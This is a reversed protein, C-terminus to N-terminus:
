TAKKKKLEVIESNDLIRQLKVRMGRFNYITKKDELVQLDLIRVVEEPYYEAFDSCGLSSDTKSIHLPCTGCHLARVNKCLYSRVEEASDFVLDKCLYPWSKDSIDYIPNKTHIRYKM